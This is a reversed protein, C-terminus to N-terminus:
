CEYHRPSGNDKRSPPCAQTNMVLHIKAPTPFLNSSSESWVAIVKYVLLWIHWPGAISLRKWQTNPTYLASIEGIFSNGVLFKLLCTNHFFYRSLLCFFYEMRDPDLLIQKKKQLLHIRKWIVTFMRKCGAGMKWRGLQNCPNGFCIQLSEPAKNTACCSRM